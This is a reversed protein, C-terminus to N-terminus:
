LPTVPVPFKAESYVYNTYGNAECYTQFGHPIFIVESFADIRDDYTYESYIHKVTYELVQMYKKEFTIAGIIRNEIGVM